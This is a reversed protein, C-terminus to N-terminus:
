QSTSPISGQADQIAQDRLSRIDIPQEKMKEASDTALPYEQKVDRSGKEPLASGFENYSPGQPGEKGLRPSEALLAKRRGLLGVKTIGQIENPGLKIIFRSRSFRGPIAFVATTRPPQGSPNFYGAVVGLYKAEKEKPIKRKMSSGPYLASEDVPDGVIRTADYAGSILDKWSGALEFDKQNRLQLLRLELTHARDSYWNLREDTEVTYRIKTTCSSTAMALVLLLLSSLSTKTWLSTSYSRNSEYM